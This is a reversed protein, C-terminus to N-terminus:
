RSNKELYSVIGRAVSKALKDQYDDTILKKREDKSTMFGLELLTSPAKTYKCVWFSAKRVRQDSMKVDKLLQKHLHSALKYGASSYYYSQLGEMKPNTVLANVHISIFMAPNVSNSIEVREALSLSDENRTM